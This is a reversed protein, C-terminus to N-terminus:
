GDIQDMSPGITSLSLPVDTLMDHTINPSGRLSVFIFQVFILPSEAVENVTSFTTIKEFVVTVKM